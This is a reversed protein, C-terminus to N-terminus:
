LVDTVAKLFSDCSVTVSSSDSSHTHRSSIASKATQSSNAVSNVSYSFSQEVQAEKFTLTIFCKIDFFHFLKSELSKECSSIDTSM